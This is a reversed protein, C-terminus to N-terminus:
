REPWTERSLRPPPAVVHYVTKSLPFLMVVALCAVLVAFGEGIMLALAPATFLVVRSEFPYAGIWAASLALFVPAGLLLLPLRQNRQWWSVGGIVAPIILAHGTPRWLHELLRGFADLSWLPVSWPRRWDPFDTWFTNLIPTRQDHIPGLVLLVFPIVTAALLLAYGAHSRWDRRRRWWAPLFALLVGGYIFCGPYALFVVVPALVSFLVLRTSLRWSRTALFLLAPVVAVFADVIYPKVECTYELLPDAWAFALVAWPVAEPSLCRRALPVLLVVTACSALLPLSRLAFINDGLLLYISRELWLFLPPAAQVFSLPGLLERFSKAVINRLLWLEDCWVPQNRTYYIVRLGVGAVALLWGLSIRWSVSAPCRGEVVNAM